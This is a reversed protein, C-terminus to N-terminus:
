ITSKSLRYYNNNKMCYIVHQLYMTGPDQYMEASPSLAKDSFIDKINENIENDERQTNRTDSDTLPTYNFGVSSEYDNLDTYNM